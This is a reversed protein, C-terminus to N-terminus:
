SKSSKKIVQYVKQLGQQTDYKEQNIEQRIKELEQLREIGSLSIWYKFNAEDEGKKAILIIKEM